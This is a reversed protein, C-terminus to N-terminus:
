VAAARKILSAIEAQIPKLTSDILECNKAEDKKLAEITIVPLETAIKSLLNVDIDDPADKLAGKMAKSMEVASSQCEDAEKEVEAHFDTRAKELDTQLSLLLEQLRFKYEKYHYSVSHNELLAVGMKISVLSSRVMKAYTSLYNM